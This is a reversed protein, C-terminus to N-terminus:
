SESTIKKWDTENIELRYKEQLKDLWSKYATETKERKLLDTISKDINEKKAKSKKNHKKKYDAIEDASVTISSTLDKAIVKEMVLRAKVEQEWDHYSIMSELLEQEFEEQPYGDTIDAVASKLESASINIGLERAREMLILRECIQDLFQVRAKQLFEPDNVMDYAYATKSLEFARKFEQVTIVSSGARILYPKEEETKKENCGALFFLFIFFLFLYKIKM